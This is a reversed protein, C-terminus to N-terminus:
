NVELIGSRSAHAVIKTGYDYFILTHGIEENIEM